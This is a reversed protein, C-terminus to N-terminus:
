SQTIEPPPPPSSNIKPWGCLGGGGRLFPVFLVLICHGCGRYTYNITTCTTMKKSFIEVQHALNKDQVYQHPLLPSHSSEHSEMLFKGISRIVIAWSHLFFHIPIVFQENHLVSYKLTSHVHNLWQFFHPPPPYTPPPSCLTHYVTICYKQPSYLEPERKALQM